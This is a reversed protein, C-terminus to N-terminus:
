PSTYQLEHGRLNREAPVEFFIRKRRPTQFINYALILDGRLRRREFSYLNLRRLREAYPLERMGNVMRTVLRQIRAMLAISRQIEYFLMGKILKIELRLDIM